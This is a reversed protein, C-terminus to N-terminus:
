SAAPGTAPVTFAWLLYAAFVSQWPSYLILVFATRGANTTVGNDGFLIVFALAGLSALLATALAAPRLRRFGGGLPVLGAFSLGAGVAGGAAGALAAGLVGHDTDSLKIAAVVAILFALGIAAACLMSGRFGTRGRWALVFVIPTSFAPSLVWHSDVGGEFVIASAAFGCVGLATAAAGEWRQIDRAAPRVLRRVSWGLLHALLAAGAAPGVAMVPLIAAAIMGEDAAIDALVSSFAAGAGLWLALAAGAAFASGTSRFSPDPTNGPADM